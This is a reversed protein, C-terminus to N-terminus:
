SGDSIVSATPLAAERDLEDAALGLLKALMVIAAVASGLALLTLMALSGLSKAEPVMWVTMALAVLQLTVFGAGKAQAHGRLEDAGRRGAFSGIAIAVLAMGATIVLPLAIALAQAYRQLEDGGFGFSDGGYLMKYMWPLQGLLVGAAWLSTAGGIVFPWRGLEAVSGRATRVAGVGFQIFAVLSVVLGAIMALKLMEVSGKSGKGGIVMLTLLPVAAVAIVRLWLSKAALRLGSAAVSRDSVPAGRALVWFGAALLAYRLGRLTADILVGTTGDPLWSYMDKALFAPPWTLLNVAVIVIALVRRERFAAIALGVAIAMWGAWFAYDAAKYIWEHKSMYEFSKFQLLAWALDLVIEFLFAGAVIRLGLAARGTLRRALELAGLTALVETALSIGSSTLQYRIATWPEKVAIRVIVHAVLLAFWAAFALVLEPPLARLGRREDTM